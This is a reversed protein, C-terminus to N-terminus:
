LPSMIYDKTNFAKSSNSSSSSSSSNITTNKFNDNNHTKLTYGIWCSNADLKGWTKTFYEEIVISSIYKKGPCALIYWNRFDQILDDKHLCYTDDGSLIRDKVYRLYISDSENWYQLNRQEIIKPKQLGDQQYTPFANFLLWLAAPALFPIHHQFDRRIPVLRQKLQEEKTDPANESKVWKSDFPVITVREETAGDPNKVRPVQNCVLITKYTAKVKGGNKNLFRAFFTDSGTLLKIIQKNLEEDDNSEETVVFLAGSCQALEPNPGSSARKGGTLTSVPIKVLYEGFICELLIIFMTKSNNGCGTFIPFIKDLNGHLFASAIYLTVFAILEKSVFMEELWQQIEKVRRDDWSLNRDFGVATQKAIYDEPRGNDFVIQTGQVRFVGNKIGTINNNNNLLEEFRKNHFTDSCYNFLASRHGQRSLYLIVRSIKLLYIQWKTKEEGDTLLATASSIRVQEEEYERLFKETICKRFHTGDDESWHHDKYYYWCNRTISVYYMSYLEYLHLSFEHENIERDTTKLCRSLYYYHRETKWRKYEELNDEKFWWLLTKYTIGYKNDYFLRWQENVLLRLDEDNYYADYNESSFESSSSSSSSSSPQELKRFKKNDYTYGAKRDSASDRLFTPAYGHLSYIKHSNQLWTERMDDSHDSNALAQGIILWDEYNYSHHIALHPLIHKIINIPNALEYHMTAQPAESITIIDEIVNNSNSTNKNDKKNKSKLIPSWYTLSLFYPILFSFEYNDFMGSEVIGNQEHSHFSTSFIDHITLEGGSNFHGFNYIVDDELLIERYCHDIKLLNHGKILSCGYMVIADRINRKEIINHWNDVPSRELKGTVNNERLYRIVYERINQQADFSCRIYPFHLRIQLNDYEDFRQITKSGLVVVSYSKQLDLLHLNNSIAQQYAYIIQLIFQEPLPEWEEDDCCDFRFNLDAILTSDISSLEALSIQTTLQQENDFVVQCYDLWFQPYDETSIGLMIKDPLIIHTYNESNGYKTILQQLYQEM